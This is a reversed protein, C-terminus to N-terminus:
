NRDRYVLNSIFSINMHPGSARIYAHVPSSFICLVRYLFIIISFVIVCRIDVWSM